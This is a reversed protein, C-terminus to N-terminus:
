RLGDVLYLDSQVHRGSYAWTNGDPTIRLFGNFGGDTTSIQKWLRTHGTKLDLLFVSIEGAEFRYFYLGQSDSTWQAVRDGPSLGAIVRGEGEGEIPILLSQGARVGIAFKGDPSVARGPSLRTGEPGIPRPSGARLPQVYLHSSGDSLTASFVIGASDPLWAAFGFDTFKGPDLQRVEGPGTPLVSFRPRRSPNSREDILVWKGDPSMTRGLGHGLKVAPSGDVSRLYVVPSEGAGEGQENLLLTRGDDSLDALFSADLWSLERESPQGTSGLRM